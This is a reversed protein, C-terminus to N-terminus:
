FRAELCYKVSGIRDGGELLVIITTRLGMLSLSISIVLLFGKWRGYLKMPRHSHM